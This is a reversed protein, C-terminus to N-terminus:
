ATGRGKREKLLPEVLCRDISVSDTDSSVVDHEHEESVQQGKTRRLPNSSGRYKPDAFNMRAFQGITVAKPKGARKSALMMASM